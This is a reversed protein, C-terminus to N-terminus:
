AMVQVHNLHCKMNFEYKEMLYELHELRMGKLIKLM